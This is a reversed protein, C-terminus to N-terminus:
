PLLNSLVALAEDAPHQFEGLEKWELASKTAVLSSNM